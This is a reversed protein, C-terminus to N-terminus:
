GARQKCGPFLASSSGLGQSGAWVHLGLIQSMRSQKGLGDAPLQVLLLSDPCSGTGINSPPVVPLPNIHEAVVCAEGLVM